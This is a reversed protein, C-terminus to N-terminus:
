FGLDFRNKADKIFSIQLYTYEGSYAITAVRKEVTTPDSIVNM